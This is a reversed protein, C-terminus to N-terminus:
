EACYENSAQSQRLALMGACPRSLELCVPQSWCPHAGLIGAPNDEFDQAIAQLLSGPALTQPGNSPGAAAGSGAHVALLAEDFTTALYPTVCNQCCHKNLSTLKAAISTDKSLVQSGPLCQLRTPSLSANSCCFVVFHLMILMGPKPSMAVLTVM